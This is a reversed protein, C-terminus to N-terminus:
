SLKRHTFDARRFRTSEYKERKKEYEDDFIILTSHVLVYFIFLFSFVVVVIYYLIKHEQYGMAALFRQKQSRSNKTDTDVDLRFPKNNWYWSTMAIGKWRKRQTRIFTVRFITIITTIKLSNLLVYVVVSATKLSFHELEAASTSITCIIRNIGSAYGTRLVRKM